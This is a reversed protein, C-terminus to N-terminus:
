DKYPFPPYVLLLLLFLHQSNVRNCSSLFFDLYVVQVDGDLVTFALNRGEKTEFELVCGEYFPGDIFVTEDM